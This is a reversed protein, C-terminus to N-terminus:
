SGGQLIQRYIKLLRHAYQGWGSEAELAVAEKDNMRYHLHQASKCAQVLSERSTPDYLVSARPPLMGRFRPLNPAVVVREFSLALLATELMGANPLAVHPLVVADAAGMYLPIDDQSFPSLSLHIASNSAALKLMRMVARKQKRANGTGDERPSFYYPPLLPSFDPSLGVILLQPNVVAIKQAQGKRGEHREQSKGSRSRSGLRRANRRSTVRKGGVTRGESSESTADEVQARQKVEDFARMLHLLERETHTHAFCLYVFSSESQIGLQKHAESREVSPAFYGRFGPHPLCRVRRRLKRDPYLQEPQRTYALVIDSQQMLKRELMRRSLFRLNHTCQWWGGTETTVIRIGWRRALWLRLSFGQLQRRTPNFAGPSYFHIIGMAQKDYARHRWLWAIPIDTFSTTCSVDQLALAHLLLEAAPDEKQARVLLVAPTTVEPPAHELFQLRQRLHGWCRAQEMAALLRENSSQAALRLLPRQIIALHLIAGLEHIVSKVITAKAYQVVQELRAIDAYQMLVESRGQWYARGVFYARQLRAAPVRHTVAATPEYWLNYEAKRLRNCLDQVELSTPLHMRKSLFPLFYGISRLAEIKVSFNSSSFSNGEQLQQRTPAPAYYGLMDLLDETLWHPRPAEWRLEVRGGIADADTEEYAQLLHELLHPDAITDDDLFVAIEGAAVLLGTHRAHALGNKPESLCQVQWVDEPRKEPLVGANVYARVTGLTGDTSGNDIVIVEFQGYPLTQRRLSALASLVLNCRNYTCLIVSLRPAVRAPKLERAHQPVIM